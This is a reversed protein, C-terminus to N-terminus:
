YYWLFNYKRTQSLQGIFERIRSDDDNEFTLTGNLDKALHQKTSIAPLANKSFGENNRFNYFNSYTSVNFINIENLSQVWTM